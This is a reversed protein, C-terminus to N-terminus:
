VDKLIYTLLFILSGVCKFFFSHYKLILSGVCKFGDLYMHTLFLM